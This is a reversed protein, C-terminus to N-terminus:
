TSVITYVMYINPILCRGLPIEWRFRWLSSTTKQPWRQHACTKQVKAWWNVMWPETVTINSSSQIIHGFIAMWLVIEWHDWLWEYGIYGNYDSHLWWNVMIIDGLPADGWPLCRGVGDTGDQTAQSLEELSQFLQQVEAVKEENGWSVRLM